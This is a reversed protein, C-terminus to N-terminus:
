SGEFLRGLVDKVDVSEDYESLDLALFKRALTDAQELVRMEEASLTACAAILNEGRASLAAIESARDVVAQSIGNMAACVTGFSKDSRGPRFNYLYTIQDETKHSSESVQVEMHGLQLQPRPRLFGNELIEHFHTAVIVKPSSELDLLHTLIGCALGIGDNESTGKGFEDIILLSRDTIQKLDFSIQQLDRMFTSQIQSVSDQTSSKVIIKDTIGLEASAAPVFSGIQALYAVLAVQKMYVSKGSYNPGTLLLMSPGHEENMGESNDQCTQSSSIAPCDSPDGGVLYTDNPVYSSVTLEQLIHRGGRIKIINEPVMKPCVLKYFNAAQAMALLSDLQGCIDSAELLNSEYRLLRQALDYVIEIEKECILGYIDGLKEDLERMRFDKFYARNETFFMLNWEEAPGRYAADGAQNLPIAINFGLQPFYIVNVDIDYFEPIEGAIEIAIKKLLSNLGDYNDKMRDLARDIGPKVVTRGQEESSDIDVRYLQAAEFVRIARQLLALGDAGASERLADYIDIGYFAFALLSAWVTTKFGMVKGSGTEIGKRLNVIVYRLNKIHKFSKTLKELPNYNDARLYASIFAHREQIVDVDVSPRLFMQKLRNKGQPTRAFRQFLGYVSLGEKSFNSKRGQNVISPHSESEMIQLSSLTRKNVFMAGLLSFMEVSRVRYTESAQDTAISASARRRQLHMLLAGACGITVTNEMEISSSIHLLKGEQLTFDLSESDIQESDAFGNHPVLFRMRQEHKSSIGLAVLKNKANEYGFEQSPRIDLQFPLLSGSESDPDIMQRDQLANHDVRPSLLLMTPSTQIILSDIVESDSHRLDGLLYLKEERVSYYSCGVTGSERSDIAVIVQDLEDDAPQLSLDSDSLNQRAQTAEHPFQPSPQLVSPQRIRQSFGHTALRANTSGQPSVSEYVTRRRKVSSRM